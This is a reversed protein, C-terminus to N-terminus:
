QIFKKFYKVKIELMLQWNYKHAILESIFSRLIKKQSITCGQLNNLCTNLDFDDEICYFHSVMGDLINKVNIVNSFVSDEKTSVVNFYFDEESFSLSLEGLSPCFAEL